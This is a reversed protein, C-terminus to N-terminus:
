QGIRANWASSLAYGNVVVGTVHSAWAVVTFPRWLVLPPEEGFGLLVAVDFDGDSVFPALQLSTASRISPLPADVAQLARRFARVAVDLLPVDTPVIVDLAQDIAAVDGSVSGGAVAEDKLLAGTFTVPDFAALANSNNSLVGAWWAGKEAVDVRTGAIVELEARRGIAANPMVVDLEGREYLQLLTVQDPVVVLHLEALFPGRGWWGPNPVLVLELGPTEGAVTWPGGWIGPGPPTLPVLADYELEITSGDARASPVSRLVDDETIPEGNSWAAGEALQFRVRNGDLEEVSVALSPAWEGDPQRVFLQPHVLTRM